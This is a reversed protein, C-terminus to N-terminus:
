AALKQHAFDVDPQPEPRFHDTDLRNPHLRNEACYPPKAWLCFEGRFVLRTPQSRPSEITPPTSM